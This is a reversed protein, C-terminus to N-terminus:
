LSKARKKFTLFYAILNTSNNEKIDLFKLANQAINGLRESLGLALINAKMVPFLSTFVSSMMSNFLRGILVIPIFKPHLCEHNQSMRAPKGEIKRQRGLASGPFDTQLSYMYM